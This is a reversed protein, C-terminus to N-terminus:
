HCKGAANGSDPALQIMSFSTIPARRSTQQRRSVARQRQSFMDTQDDLWVVINDTPKGEVCWGRDFRPANILQPVTNTAWVALGHGEAPPQNQQHHVALALAHGALDVGEAARRQGARFAAPRHGLM